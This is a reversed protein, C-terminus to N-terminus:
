FRLSGIGDTASDESGEHDSSNYISQTSRTQVGTSSSIRVARPLNLIASRILEDSYLASTQDYGKTSSGQAYDIVEKVCHKCFPAPSSYVETKVPFGRQIYSHVMDKNHLRHLRRTAPVRVDQECIFVRPVSSLESHECNKCTRRVYEAVLCTTQFLGQQIIPIPRPLQLSAAQDLRKEAIRKRPKKKEELIKKGEAIAAAFLDFSM